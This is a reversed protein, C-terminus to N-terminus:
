CWKGADARYHDSDFLSPWTADAGLDLVRYQTAVRDSAFDVYPSGTDSLCLQTVALLYRGDAHQFMALAQVHGLGLQTLWDVVPQYQESQWEQQRKPEWTDFGDPHPGLFLGPDPARFVLTGHLRWPEIEVVVPMM